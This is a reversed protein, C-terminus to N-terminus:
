ASAREPVAIRLLPRLEAQASLAQYQRALEEHIAAVERNESKFAMALEELARRRYYETNNDSVALGEM